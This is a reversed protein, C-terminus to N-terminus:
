LISICAVQAGNVRRTIWMVRKYIMCGVWLGRQKGMSLTGWYYAAYSTLLGPRRSGLWTAIYYTLHGELIDRTGGSPWAGQWIGLVKWYALCWALLCYLFHMRGMIRLHIYEGSDAIRFCKYLSPTERERGRERKGSANLGYISCNM